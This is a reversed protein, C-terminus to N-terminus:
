PYLFWTQGQSVIQGPLCLYNVCVYYDRPLLLLQCKHLAQGTGPEELHTMLHYSM